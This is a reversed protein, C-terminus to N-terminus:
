LLCVQAERVSVSSLVRAPVLFRLGLTPCLRGPSQAGLLLALALAWGRQMRKGRGAARQPGLGQGHSAEQQRM